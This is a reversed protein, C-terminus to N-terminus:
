SQPLLVCKCYALAVLALRLPPMHTEDGSIEVLEMPYSVLTAIM